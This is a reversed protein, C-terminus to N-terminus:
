AAGDIMEIFRALSVIHIEADLRYAMYAIMDTKKRRLVADRFASRPLGRTM